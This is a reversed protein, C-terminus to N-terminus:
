IKTKFLYAMIKTTSEVACVYVAHLINEKPYIGLTQTKNASTESSVILEMKL